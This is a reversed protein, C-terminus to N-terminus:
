PRLGIIKPCFVLLGIGVLGVRVSRGILGDLVAIHKSNEKLWCGISTLV